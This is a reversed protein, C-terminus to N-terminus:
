QEEDHCHRLATETARHEFRDNLRLLTEIVDDDNTLHPRRKQYAALILGANEKLARDTPTPVHDLPVAYTFRGTSSVHTPIQMFERDKGPGVESEETIALGAEVFFEVADDPYGFLHGYGRWRDAKPMRDVIAVIETPHTCPTIGWPSWFSELREIMRALAERHVM